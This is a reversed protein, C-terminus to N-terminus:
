TVDGTSKPGDRSECAPARKKASASVVCRVCVWGPEVRLACFVRYHDRLMFSEKMLSKEFSAALASRSRAVGANIIAFSSHGDSSGTGDISRSSAM